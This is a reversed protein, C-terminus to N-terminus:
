VNFVEDQDMRVSRLARTKQWDQWESAKDYTILLSRRPAPEPPGRANALPL